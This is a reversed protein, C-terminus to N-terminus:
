KDGQWLDLSTDESWTAANKWQIIEYTKQEQNIRLAIFLQQKEGITISLVGDEYVSGDPWVFDGEQQLCADVQALWKQGLCENEYIQTVHEAAKATQKYDAKATMISLVSLVAVCIMIVVFLLFVTGLRVKKGRM